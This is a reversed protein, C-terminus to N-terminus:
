AWFKPVTKSLTGDSNNAPMALSAAIIGGTSTGAVLDFIDKMAIKGEVGDYTEFTYGKSTAYNYAEIEM